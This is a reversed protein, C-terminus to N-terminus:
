KGLLCRVKLRVPLYGVLGWKTRQYVVIAYIYWYKATYQWTGPKATLWWRDLVTRIAHRMVEVERGM